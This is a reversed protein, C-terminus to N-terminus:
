GIRCEFRKTGSPSLPNCGQLAISFAGQKNATPTPLEVYNMLRVMINSDIGRLDIWVVSKKPFYFYVKHQTLFSAFQNQEASNLHKLCLMTFDIQNGTLIQEWNAAKKVQVVASPITRAEQFLVQTLRGFEKQYSSNHRRNADFSITKSNKSDDFDTCGNRGPRFNSLPGKKQSLIDQISEQAYM